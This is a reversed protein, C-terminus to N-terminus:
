PYDRGAGAILALRLFTLHLGVMLLTMLGCWWWAAPTEVNFVVTMGFAAALPFLRSGRWAAPRLGVLFAASYLLTTAFFAQWWPIVSVWEFPAPRGGPRASLWLGIGLGLAMLGVLGAAGYAWKMLLLRERPVPRHLLFLWTQRSSEALTQWLGLGIAFLALTCMALMPPSEGRFPFTQGSRFLDFNQSLGFPDLAGLPSWGCTSGVSHFVLVAAILLLWGTERWEKWWIAKWM